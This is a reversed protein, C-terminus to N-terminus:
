PPLDARVTAFDDQTVALNEALASSGSRWDWLLHLFNFVLLIHMRLDNTILLHVKRKRVNSLKKVGEIPNHGGKDRRLWAFASALRRLSSVLRGPTM